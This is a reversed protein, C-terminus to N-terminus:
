EAQPVIPEANMPTPQEAGSEEPTETMKPDSEIVFTPTEQPMDPMPAPESYTEMENMGAPDSMDHAAPDTPPTNGEDSNDMPEIGADDGEGEGTNGEVTNDPAATAPTSDKMDAPNQPAPATEPASADASPKTKIPDDMIPQMQSNRIPTVATGIELPASYSQGVPAVPELPATGGQPMISSQEDELSLAELNPAEKLAEKLAENLTENPAEEASEVSSASPADDVVIPQPQGAADTGEIIPM